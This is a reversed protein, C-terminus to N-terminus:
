IGYLGLLNRDRIDNFEGEMQMNMNETLLAIASAIVDFYGSHVDIVEKNVTIKDQQSQIIQDYDSRDRARLKQM